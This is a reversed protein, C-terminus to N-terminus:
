KQRKIEFSRLSNSEFKGKVKVEFPKGDDISPMVVKIAEGILQHESDHPVLYFTKEATQLNKGDQRSKGKVVFTFQNGSAGTCVVSEIDCYLKADADTEEYDQSTEYTQFPTECPYSLPPFAFPTLHLDDTITFTQLIGAGWEGPEGWSGRIKVTNGEIIASEEDSSYAMNQGIPICDTYNGGVDYSVLFEITAYDKVIALFTALRGEEGKYIEKGKSLQSNSLKENALESAKEIAKVGIEAREANTIRKRQYHADYRDNQGLVGTTAPINIAYQIKQGDNACSNLSLSLISVCLFIRCNVKM